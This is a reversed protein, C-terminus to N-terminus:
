KAGLQHLKASILHESFVTLNVTYTCTHTRIKAGFIGGFINRRGVPIFDGMYDRWHMYDCCLVIFFM